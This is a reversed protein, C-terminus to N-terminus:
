LNSYTLIASVFSMYCLLIPFIIRHLGMHTCVKDLYPVITAQLSICETTLTHVTNNGLTTDFHWTNAASYCHSAYTYNRQCQPMTTVHHELELAYTGCMNDCKQKICFCYPLLFHSPFITPVTDCVCYCHNNTVCMVQLPPSSVRM